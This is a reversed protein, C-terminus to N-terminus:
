GERRAVHLSGAGYLAIGVFLLSVMTLLMSIPDRVDFQLNEDVYISTIPSLRSYYSWVLYKSVGSPLLESVLGILSGIMGLSLAFTQNKVAISAWQQIAILVLTTMTTGFVFIIVWFPVPPFRHVIGFSLVALVQLVCAIGMVISASVYKAMYLTSRKVSLAYLLQWTNGKHEMDCIRSVSIATLIPLFFGNMSCITAILPEWGAQDPNRTISIRTVAFAWGIETLLFLIVMLFLRKHRWKYLELSIVKM